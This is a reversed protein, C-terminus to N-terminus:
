YCRSPSVHFIDCRYRIRCDSPSQFIAGIGVRRTAWRDINEVRIAASTASMLPHRRMSNAGMVAWPVCAEAPLLASLGIHASPKAHRVTPVALRAVAILQHRVATTDTSCRVAKPVANSRTSSTRDHTVRAVANIPLIASAKDRTTRHPHRRRHPRSRSRSIACAPFVPTTRFRSM